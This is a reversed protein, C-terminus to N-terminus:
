GGSNIFAVLSAVRFVSGRSGRIKLSEAKVGVSALLAAGDMSDRRQFNASASFRLWSISVYKKQDESNQAQQCDGVPHLVNEQKHLVIRNAHDDRV